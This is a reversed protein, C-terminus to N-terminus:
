GSEGMRLVALFAEQPDRGLRRAEDAAQGGEAERAAEAQAHHRWRLVKALVNKRMARITERAVVTSGIAAQVPVEFM